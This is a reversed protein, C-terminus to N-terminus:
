HAEASAKYNEKKKKAKNGTYEETKTELIYGTLSFEEQKM